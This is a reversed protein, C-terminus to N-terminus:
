AGFKKTCAFFAGIFRQKESEKLSAKSCRKHKNFIVTRMKFFEKEALLM